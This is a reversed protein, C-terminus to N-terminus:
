PALIGALAGGLLPGLVPVAAYSWDSDRKGPIPLLFHVFRPGLDRAPNLAHGTTGGLSLGIAYVIMGVPLAGLSGLGLHTSGDTDLTPRAFVLVAFVLIFTAVAESGLNSPTNRINPVTCFTALIADSDDCLDYHPKYFLYGSLGGLAAGLLQALVFGPVITWSVEGAVALGLTVAPNLHSSGLADGCWVATFVAMGWGAAIVHWGSANGKTRPLLVNAVVGNGMLLLIATGIFEASLERM